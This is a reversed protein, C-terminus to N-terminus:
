TCRIQVKKSINIPILLMLRDNDHPAIWLYTPFDIALSSTEDKNAARMRVALALENSVKSEFSLRLNVLFRGRPLRIIEFLWDLEYVKPLYV